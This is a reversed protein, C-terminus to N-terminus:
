WRGPNQGPGGNGGSNVSTSATATTLQTAGNSSYTLYRNDYETTENVPDTGTGGTSLTYSGQLGPATYMLYTYNKAAKATLVTALSSDSIAFTKGSTLSMGSFVVANQGLSTPNNKMSGSSAAALVTAGNAIVYQANSDGTDIPSNDNSTAGWVIIDGGYAYFSGNCDIGDGNSSYTGTVTSNDNVVNQGDKVTLSFDHTTDDAIMVVVTGSYVTMDNGSMTSVTTKQYTEESEDAYVYSVSSKSATNIGDDNSYVSVYPAKSESGSTGIVLDAAEIGEYAQNINVVANDKITLKNDTSIGDDSAKITVTGGTIEFDNNSKIGDEPSGIIYQGDNNAASLNGTSSGGRGMGGSGNYKIGTHTTDINITGGSIKIGGSATNTYTTGATNSSGEAVTTYKYSESKSGGKIGKHSGTDINVTETKTKSSGSESVTMSNHVALATNYYNLGANEFYTTIRIDGGSIDVWEGQIGDGYCEDVKVLGGSVTVTYNKANIADEKTYDAYISGGSINIEGNKSKIANSLYSELHFIGGSINVGGEGDAGTGKLADGNTKIQYTGGNVSLTGKTAIGDSPDVDDFSTDPDMADTISLVGEGANFINLTPATGKQSIVAQPESVFTGSGTLSNNGKLYLNVNTDKGISIVSADKGSVASITTNDITVGDLILDVDESLSKAVEVVVNSASGSLRYSGAKSIAVTTVGTSESKSVSINADSDSDADVYVSEGLSITANVKKNSIDTFVNNSASADVAPTDNNTDGPQNNDEADGDNNDSNNDDTTGDNNDDTTGDNNDDTTGDNDKVDNNSDLNNSNSNNNSDDNSNTNNNSANSQKTTVKVKKVKSWAGFKKKSNVVKYARVKVYYTGANLKKTTLSTKKTYKKYVVSKGSKLKSVLVYYGSIKKLKKWKIVIKQNTNAKVSSITVKSVKTAAQVSNAPLYAFVLALILVIGICKSLVRKKGM